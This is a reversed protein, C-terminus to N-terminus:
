AINIQGAQCKVLHNRLRGADIGAEACAYFFAQESELRFWAAIKQKPSDPEEMSLDQIFELVADACPGDNVTGNAVFKFLPHPLGPIISRVNLSQVMLEELSKLPRQNM